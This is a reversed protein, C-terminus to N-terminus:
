KLMSMAMGARGPLKIPNEEKRKPKNVLARTREDNLRIRERVKGTDEDLDDLMVTQVELEKNMGVALNKLDGVVQGIKDLDQDQEKELMDLEQSVTLPAVQRYADRAAGQIGLLEQREESISSSAQIAEDPLDVVSTNRATGRLKAKRADKSRHPIIRHMLPRHMQDIVKDTQDLVNYAHVLDDNVAQLQGTQRHLEKATHFGVERAETASTLAQRTRATTDRAVRLAEQEMQDTELALQRASKPLDRQGDDEMVATARANAQARAGRRGAAKRDVYEVVEVDDEDEDDTRGRPIRSPGALLEARARRQENKRGTANM